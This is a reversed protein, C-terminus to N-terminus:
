IVGYKSNATVNNAPDRAFIAARTFALRFLRRWRAPVYNMGEALEIVRSAYVLGALLGARNGARLATRRSSIM